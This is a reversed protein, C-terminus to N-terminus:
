AVDWKDDPIGPFNVECMGPNIGYYEAHGYPDLVGEQLSGDPLRIQYKEGAIPRGKRDRLYIEIWSDKKPARSGRDTQAKRDQGSDPTNSGFRGSPTRIVELRGSVLQSAIQRLNEEASSRQLSSDSPIFEAMAAIQVPDNKLLHRVLAIAEDINRLAIRSDHKELVVFRIGGLLKTTM